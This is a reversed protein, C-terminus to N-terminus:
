SSKDDPFSFVSILRSGTGRGCPMRALFQQVKVLNIKGCLSHKLEVCSSKAGEQFKDVVLKIKFYNNLNLYEM